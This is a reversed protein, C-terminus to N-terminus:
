KERSLAVWVIVVEAALSLNVKFPKSVALKPNLRVPIVLILVEPDDSILRPLPEYEPEKPIPFVLAKTDKIEELQDIRGEPEEEKSLISMPPPYECLPTVIEFLPSIEALPLRLISPVILVLVRVPDERIKEPDEGEMLGEVKFLLKVREALPVPIRV